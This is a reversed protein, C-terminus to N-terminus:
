MKFESQATTATTGDDDSANIVPTVDTVVTVVTTNTITILRQQARSRELVIGKAALNPTLIELVRGLRPADKPWGRSNSVGLKFAIPTLLAYLESPTGTWTAQDKIFEMIAQAVPNAEIAEDHQTAINAYYAQEFAKGSYGAAEAIAYGWHLFDAMRTAKDLKVNPRLALAKVSVDFIAGLIDPLDHEFEAWFLQSPKRKDESIRELHILISRDLLDSKYVVQNISNLAITRQFRYIVDDDDTYLGRKSFSGGTVARALTDSFAEPMTSLNDFFLFYHHNAIQAFESEKSPLSFGERLSSPDILDKMIMMPTTKGAGQIGHLILLPHPYDPIFAAVVYVLFLLQEAEDTINVYKLLARLDGGRRPVVQPKQHSFRRFIIPPQEIVEWREPTVHVASGGLDYWLGEKNYVSRAELAHQKGDFHARAALTDLVRNVADTSPVKGLQTHCYHVLWLKAINSHVKSVNSGNGDYAIYPENYQDHFLKVASETLAAIIQDVTTKPAQNNKM